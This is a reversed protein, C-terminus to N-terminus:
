LVSEIRATLFLDKWGGDALETLFFAPTRLEPGLLRLLNAHFLEPLNPHCRADRHALHLCRAKTDDEQGYDSRDCEDEFASM